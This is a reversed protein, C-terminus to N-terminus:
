LPTNNGCIMRTYDLIQVYLIFNILIFTSYVNVIKLANRKLIPKKKAKKKTPLPTIKTFGYALMTFSKDESMKKVWGSM